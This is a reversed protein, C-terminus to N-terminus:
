SRRPWATAKTSAISTRKVNLSITTGSSQTAGATYCSGNDTLWEIPEPVREANGFRSQVAQLM